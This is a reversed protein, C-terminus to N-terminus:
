IINKVYLDPLKDLISRLNDFDIRNKVGFGIILKVFNKDDMKSSTDGQNVTKKVINDSGYIIDYKFTKDTKSRILITKRDDKNESEIVFQNFGKVIIKNSYKM